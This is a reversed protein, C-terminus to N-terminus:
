ERVQAEPLADWGPWGAPADVLRVGALGGIEVADVAHRRGPERGTWERALLTRFRTAASPTDWVTWWVLAQAGDDAEFVAYRDGAWDRAGASGITESGSLETLLVRIEFEGLNDEYVPPGVAPAVAGVALPTPPDGARYRDPHLIQETSTPLRPGFPVTDAYQQDFWRVFDAGALYPFILSERIIRPASGFVPMQEQQRRVANRYDRWLEPLNDFDQDPMLARLSALTAQGEMVAQVALQRDNQYKLSLLSDLLVYQGQLAHVLEHALTLRVNTPLSGQVVYLTTSDPDYFGVIQETYLSLLLARLDLTDPILGFLRYAAAAREFEGGGYEEDLKAVLYATVQEPTRVAIAPEHKFPLGVAREVAPLLEVAMARIEEDDRPEPRGGCAAVGVSCILVAVLGAWRGPHQTSPERPAM